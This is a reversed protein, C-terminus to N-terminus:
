SYHQIIGWQVTVNTDGYYRYLVLRSTTYEANFAVVEDLQMSETVRLVSFDEPYLWCSRDIGPIDANPLWLHNGGTCAYTYYGDGLPTTLQENLDDEVARTDVAPVLERKVLETHRTGCAGCYESGGVRERNYEKCM